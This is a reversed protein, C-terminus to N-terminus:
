AAAMNAVINEPLSFTGQKIRDTFQKLRSRKEEIPRDGIVAEALEDRATKDLGLSAAAELLSELDGQEVVLNMTNGDGVAVNNNSGYLNNITLTVAQHLGPDQVTPGGTEGVEPHVGQLELAFVLANNRISDIVGKIKSRPLTACAAILNMGEFYPVRGQDEWQNWQAILVPSWQFGPDGEGSALDELEMVPQFLRTEFMAPIYGEPIGHRDLPATMSSGRWGSSTGMVPLMFPGRYTPIQATSDRPYGDLEYKIWAITEQSRIRHSVVLMKRLVDAVPVTSTSADQVIQELVSM